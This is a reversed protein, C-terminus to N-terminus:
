PLGPLRSFEMIRVNIMAVAEAAARNEADANVCSRLWLVADIGSKDPM